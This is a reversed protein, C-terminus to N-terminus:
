SRRKSQHSLLDLQRHFIQMHEEIMQHAFERSTSLHRDDAYGTAQDVNQLVPNPSTPIETSQSEESPDSCDLTSETEAIEFWHRKRDFCYPPLHIRRLIKRPFWSDLDPCVGSAWLQGVSRYVHSRDCTSEKAHPLSSIVFQHHTQLPQQRALTSLAQGPGIEFFVMEPQDLTAALTQSFQVPERIQRSWYDSSTAQDDSMRQGTVTSLIPIKPATLQVRQVLKRFEDVAPDMMWSHFAHSTRLPKCVVEEGLMGDEIQEAFKEISQDPGSVVSLSPANIAAIEVDQPLRDQLLSDHVNVALMSGSPLSQMIRGRAAVLRAADDLTMVGGIVAAAFEGVSHGILQQPGIGRQQFWRALSVSVMFIAPQAFRTAHIDIDEKTTGWAVDRLDCGVHPKLANAAQGLLRAFDPEQRALERVMGVHQSGQGPFLFVLKPAHKNRNLTIEAEDLARIAEHTSEVTCHLRHPFQKRGAFLTHSVDTLNCSPNDRLYQQLGRRAADLSTPTAASLCLLHFENEPKTSSQATASTVPDSTVPDASAPAEELILHANTGGVGFSSVGARRLVNQGNLTTTPWADLKTQVFFPSNEFDIQPNPRNFNLSPPIQHKKLSLATKIVASVGAAVDLHGMNSKLSGLACFQKKDTSERFADTLAAVEIPDGVLTGTGHAEVYSISDAAIGACRHAEVIAAKQGARSPATYGGKDGGDNNVGWGKIVAYISDNSHIADTLRKLVIAGVGDGFVTGKADADFTRCIGNPSLISDETHLYGQNQPFTLTVGGALAMDCEQAALSKCAQAIAVLSTSCASQVAIAPGKLNLHFAVRTALYDKDNSIEASLNGGPFSDALGARLPGDAALRLFVYTNMHCGAFVGVAGPTEDPCYGADELANWCVELFLRHQPDMEQAQRPYIGFFAADFRDADAVTASKAVYNPDHPLRSNPNPVVDRIGSRGAALNDWFEHINEACPFRGSM